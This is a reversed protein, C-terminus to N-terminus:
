ACIETGRVDIHHREPLVHLGGLLVHHYDKITAKIIKTRKIHANEWVCKYLTIIYNGQTECQFTLSYTVGSFNAWQCVRASARPKRYQALPGSTRDDYLAPSYKRPLTSLARLPAAVTAYAVTTSIEVPPKLIQCLLSTTATTPLPSVNFLKKM